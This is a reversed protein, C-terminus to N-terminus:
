RSWRKETPKWIVGLRAVHSDIPDGNEYQQSRYQYSCQLSWHEDLQHGYTLTGYHYDRSPNFRNSPYNGSVENNGVTVKASLTGQEFLRHSWELDLQESVQVYGVSSPQTRRSIRTSLTNRTTRWSLSGDITTLKSTSEELTCLPFLPLLEFEEAFSCVDAPDQVSPTSENRSRGAMLSLTLTESIQYEGGLLLGWETSRTDYSQGAAAVITDSQYDSYVLQAFTSLRENLAHSWLLSSNWYQYDVYGDDLYRSDIFSARLILLDHESIQYEAYPTITYQEHRGASGVRGSDLLESTLTSNRVGSLDLGIASRQWQHRTRVNLTQDDSDLGEMGYRRSLLTLDVNANTTESNMGADLRAAALHGASSQAPESMLLNSDHNAELRLHGGVRYETAGSANAM